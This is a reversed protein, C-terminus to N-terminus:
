FVTWLLHLRHTLLQKTMFEGILTSYRNMNQFSRKEVTYIYQKKVTIVELCERILRPWQRPLCIFHKSFSAIPFYNRLCRCLYFTQGGLIEDVRGFFCHDAGLVYIIKFFLPSTMIIHNIIKFFPVPLMRWKPDALSLRLKYPHKPFLFDAFYSIELSSFVQLNFEADAM